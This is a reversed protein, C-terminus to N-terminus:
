RIYVAYDKVEGIAVKESEHNGKKTWVVRMRTIFEQPIDKPLNLIIEEQAASGVFVQEESEFLHNENFDVWIGWEMQCDESGNVGALSLYNQNAKWLEFIINSHDEYAQGFIQETSEMDNVVIREIWAMDAKEIKVEKYSDCKCDVWKTIGALRAEVENLYTKGDAGCVPKYLITDVSEFYSISSYKAQSTAIFSNQGTVAILHSSLFFFTYLYSALKM